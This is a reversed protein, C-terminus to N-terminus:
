KEDSYRSGIMAALLSRKRRPASCTAVSLAM